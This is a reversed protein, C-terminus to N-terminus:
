EGSKGGDVNDSKCFEVLVKLWAGREARHSAKLHAAFHDQRFFRKGSVCSGFNHDAKVHDVLEDLEQGITVAASPERHFTRGCFGCVYSVLSNSTRCHFASLPTELKTCSWSFPRLHVANYHREAENM